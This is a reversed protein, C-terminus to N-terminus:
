IIIIKLSDLLLHKSYYKGNFIATNSDSESVEVWTTQVGALEDDIVRKIILPQIIDFASYIILAFLSILLLYKSKMAYKFVRVFIEKTSYNFKEVRRRSM